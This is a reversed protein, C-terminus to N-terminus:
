DQYSYEFVKTSYLKGNPLFNYQMTKRGDENYDYKRIRVLKDREDYVREEVSKGLENYVYTERTNQRKGYLQFETEQVKLGLDNYITINDVWTKKGKADTNIEKVVMNRRLERKEATTRELFASREEPPLLMTSDQYAYEYVKVSYLKGNPLYNYQKQRRGEENYEFKRIRYLKNKDNYVDERINRGDENYYYVIREKLGYVAFESEEIKLGTEDYVAIFDLWERQGKADANLEKVVLNKRQERKEATTRELFQAREQANLTICAGVLLLASLSVIFRKMLAKDSTSLLRSTTPSLISRISEM